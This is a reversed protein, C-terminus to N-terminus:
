PRGRAQSTTGWCSAGFRRTPSRPYPWSAAAKTSWCWTPPLSRSGRTATPSGSAEAYRASCPSARETPGETAAAGRLGAAIDDPGPIGPRWDTGGVTVDFQRLTGAGRVVGEAGVLGNLHRLLQLDVDLGINELVFQWAHKLNNIAKTETLTLGSVTRGGFI